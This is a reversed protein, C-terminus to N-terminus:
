CCFTFDCSLTCTKGVLSYVCTPDQTNCREPVATACSTNCTGCPAVSMTQLNNAIVTGIGKNSSDTEFSEVKIEDLNLKLKKM